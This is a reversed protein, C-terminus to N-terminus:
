SRLGAVLRKPTTLLALASLIDPCVMDASTVTAVCAGEEQILAIGLAAGALMLRDNRGNGIAVTKDAGLKEIYDLKGKDQEAEPLISLKVPTGALEARAKGFTDATLVHINLDSLAKLQNAVGDILRGDCAMTGNYDMVLHVLSLKGYGPIRIELM